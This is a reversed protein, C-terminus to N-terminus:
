RPLGLRDLLAQFRPLTRLNNFSPEVGVIM